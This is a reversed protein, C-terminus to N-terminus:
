YARRLALALLAVAALVLAINVLVGITETGVGDRLARLVSRMLPLTAYTLGIYVWIM